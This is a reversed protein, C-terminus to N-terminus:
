KQTSSFLEKTATSLSQLANDTKTQDNPKVQCVMINMSFKDEFTDESNIETFELNLISRYLYINNTHNANVKSYTESIIAILFNLMCILMLIMNFFCFVSWIIAIMFWAFLNRKEPNRQIIRLWYSYHPAQIDGISNRTTQILYALFEFIEIYEIMNFRAGTMKYLTCITVTM